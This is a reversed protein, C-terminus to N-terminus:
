EYIILMPTPTAHRSHVVILGPTHKLTKSSPLATSLVINSVRLLSYIKTAFKGALSIFFILQWLKLRYLKTTLKSNSKRGGGRLKVKMQKLLEVLLQHFKGRRLIISYTYVIACIKCRRENDM